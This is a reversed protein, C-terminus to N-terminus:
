PGVRGALALWLLVVHGVAFVVLVLGRGIRSRRNALVWSFPWAVALFRANSFPSAGAFVAAFATLSVLWYAPRIRDHRFFVFLFLYFPISLMSTVVAPHTLAAAVTL